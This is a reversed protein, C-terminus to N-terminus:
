CKSFSRSPVTLFDTAGDRVPTSTTLTLPEGWTRGVRQVKVHSPVVVVADASFTTKPPLKTGRMSQNAKQQFAILTTNDAFYIYGRTGDLKPSFVLKDHLKRLCRQVQDKTYGQRVVQGATVGTKALTLIVNTLKDYDCRQM